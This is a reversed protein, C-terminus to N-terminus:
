DDEWYDLGFVTVVFDLEAKRTGIGGLTVHQNPLSFKHVKHGREARKDRLRCATKIGEPRNWSYWGDDTWMQPM